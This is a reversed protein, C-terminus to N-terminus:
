RQFINDVISKKYMILELTEEFEKVSMKCVQTSTIDKLVICYNEEESRKHEIEINNIRMKGNANIVAMRGDIMKLTSIDDMSITTNCISMNKNSM